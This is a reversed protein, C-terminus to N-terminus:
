ALVSYVCDINKGSACGVDSGVLPVCRLTQLRHYGGGSRREPAGQRLRFDSFCVSSAGDTLVCLEFSRKGFYVFGSVAVKDVTL